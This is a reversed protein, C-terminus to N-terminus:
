RKISIKKVAGKEGTVTITIEQMEAPRIVVLACGDFTTVQEAGFEEASDPDASSLGILDAEEVQVSVKENHSCCIEGNKGRFAIDM